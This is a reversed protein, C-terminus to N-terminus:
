GGLGGCDLIYREAQFIVQAQLTKWKNQEAEVDEVTLSIAITILYWRLRCKNQEAKLDEV